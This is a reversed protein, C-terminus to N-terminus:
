HPHIRVSCDDVDSQVNSEEGDKEDDSNGLELFWGGLVHVPVQHLKEQFAVNEIKWYGRM